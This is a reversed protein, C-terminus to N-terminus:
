GQLLSICVMRIFSKTSWNISKSVNQWMKNGFISTYKFIFCVYNSYFKLYFIYNVPQDRLQLVTVSAVWFYSDTGQCSEGVSLSPADCCDFDKVQDVFAKWCSEM